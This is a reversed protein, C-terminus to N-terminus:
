QGIGGGEHRREPGYTPATLSATAASGAAVRSVEARVAPTKAAEAAPCTGALGRGNARTLSSEKITHRAVAIANGRSTAVVRIVELRWELRAAEQDLAAVAEGVVQETAGYAMLRSVRSVLQRAQAHSDPAEGLDVLVQCATTVAMQLRSVEVPYVSTANM